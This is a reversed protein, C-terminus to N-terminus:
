REKRREARTFIMKVLVAIVPGLIMGLFGLLQWGAYTAFLALLPHLGLTHGILKPEIIQRLIMMAFYLILLGVGLYYDHRFLSVVAWPVLVTGVGLIPLMDVVAVLLALLFAYEVGLIGFGLFLEAFTIALLLLYARAYRWSFGKLRSKWAPIRKQVWAPLVARLSAGIREGDMCFYFGAIVTVVTVLLASPLSAILKGAFSPLSASLANLLEAIMDGVMENFRERFAAFREAAGIRRLFGIKSTLAEFFDISSQTANTIGGGEFLLRELLDQLELMLRRLSASVLFLAGGLFLILLVTACLKQSLRFRKALKQALPRIALSVLWALLFPFILPLLYRFGLFLLGGGVCLCFLVAALREWKIGDM